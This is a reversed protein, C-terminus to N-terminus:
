AKQAVMILRPSRESCHPSNHFDGFYSVKDFDTEAFLKEYDARKLANLRVIDYRHQFTDLTKRIHLITFVIEEPNPYELIFYFAQDRHLRGPLVKPRTNILNDSYGNDILLVGGPSLRHYMSHLAALNDGPTLMHRLSNATCIILDFTRDWFQDLERFDGQRLPIDRGMTNKRAQALMATSLDSGYVEAGLDDLLVLHWGTGCACDLVSRINYRNLLTCFFDRQKFIEAKPNLYDYDEALLGYEDVEVM